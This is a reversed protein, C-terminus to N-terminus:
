WGASLQLWFSRSTPYAGLEREVQVSSPTAAAGFNAFEPDTGRFKTWTKINHATFSLQAHDTRALAGIMLKKPIDVTATLERLKWFSADQYYIRTNKQYNAARWQGLKMGGPGPADYDVSNQGLDYHRWTGAGAMGGHQRDLTAGLSFSGRHITNSFGLTFDPNGDGMKDQITTGNPLTDNGFIQTPSKGQEIKAAGTQPAGLYFSPVPLDTIIARNMAFNVHTDWSVGRWDRIPFGSVITELGRVRMSAGNYVEQSYGTTPALTRQILLNSINRQYGTVELQLRNQLMTLDVGTELERQREPAIISSGLNSSLTFAGVGGINSSNLTTFKQGYQPENGTEGYALRLKLEDLLGPKLEPMRYSGSFKPFTYFKSTNGNNSSRDARMGATLMLRENILAESQVFVGFDAVRTHSADIGRVTGATPVSLGGLLNQGSERAIDQDKLENQTGVQSTLRLWGNPTFVHVANLNVNYQLNQSFSTVATGPIATQAEYQLEPPSYIFNHQTFVDGGLVGVFRLQHKGTNMAEYQARGTTISRFVTERNQFLDITAFPNSPYFPNFPYTGDAQKRYDFFSPLKTITYYVSSGNNDNGFLGRDSNSRLNESSLQLTLNSGISQDVNLRLSEKDWFTNKVIGEDRHKVGSAYYKTADSGGSVNLSQEYSTPERGLLLDEYDFHNNPNWATAWFDPTRAGFAAQADALSQFTRSENKYALKSTGVSTRSSFRANGARGRKTTIMIVGASAKSGYIAAAAAGKLIEVSEISNPDLDAIRDVPAEQSAASIASGSAKTVLNTGAPIADDSVLVGDIVYLPQTNGLISSIGRLRIRDGGGPAGTNQQIQVGAAKGQLAVQLSPTPVTAIEKAAVSAVSNALNRREVATAQGTVVVQDLSVVDRKMRVEVTAQAAPVSTEVMTFGIHRIVLTTAGAPVTITFAGNERTVAGRTTGKVVVQAASIPDNSEVDKVTGTVTRTTGQALAAGASVLSLVFARRLLWVLDV